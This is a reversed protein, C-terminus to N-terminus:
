KLFNSNVCGLQSEEKLSDMPKSSINPYKPKSVPNHIMKDNCPCHSTMPNATNIPLSYEEHRAYEIMLNSDEYFENQKLYTSGVAADCFLKVSTELKEGNNYTVQSDECSYTEEDTLDYNKKNDKDVDGVSETLFEDADNLAKLIEEDQDKGDSGDEFCSQRNYTTIETNLM